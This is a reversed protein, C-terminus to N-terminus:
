YRRRDLLEAWTCGGRRWGFRLQWGRYVQVSYRSDEVHRLRLAALPRLEEPDHVNDLMRLRRRAIQQIHSPVGVILEGVWIRRTADNRTTLNSKTRVGGSQGRM